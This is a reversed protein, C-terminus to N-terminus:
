RKRVLVRIIFWYLIWSAAGLFSAIIWIIGSDGYNKSLVAGSVMFVSVAILFPLLELITLHGSESHNKRKLM